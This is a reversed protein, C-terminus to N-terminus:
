ARRHRKALPNFWRLGPFRAFDTDTTAIEARHEIAIAALHADTTLNGATGLKELLGFLIEPHEPGEALIAVNPLAIWNRIAGTADAVLMPSALVARKTTLRLFGIITIWALGVQVRSNLTEEWWNRAADHDPAGAHYALILLNVDPILM